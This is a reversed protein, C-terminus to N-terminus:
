YLLASRLMGRRARPTGCGGSRRQLRAGGAGGHRASTKGRGSPPNERRAQAGLGGGAAAGLRDRWIGPREWAPVRPGRQGVGKGRGVAEGILVRLHKLRTLPDKRTDLVKQTSKRVDGHPKKSFMGGPGAEPGAGAGLELPPCRGGSRGARPGRCLWLRSRRRRRRGVGVAIRRPRLPAARLWSGAPRPAPSPRSEGKKRGRKGGATERCGDPVVGADGHCGRRSTM